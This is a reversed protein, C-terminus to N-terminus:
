RNTGVSPLGPRGVREIDEASFGLEVMLEEM